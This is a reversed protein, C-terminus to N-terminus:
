QDFTRGAELDRVSVSLKTKVRAGTGVAVFIRVSPRGVLEHGVAATLGAMAFFRPITDGEIVAQIREGEFALMAVYGAAVAVGAQRLAAGLADFQPADGQGAGAAVLVWVEPRGCCCRSGRVALAAMGGLFPGRSAELMPAVRAERQNRGM